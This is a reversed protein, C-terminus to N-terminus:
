DYKTLNEKDGTRSDWKFLNSSSSINKTLINESSSIEAPNLFNNM